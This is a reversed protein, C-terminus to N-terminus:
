LTKKDVFKWNKHQKYQGNVVAYLSGRHLNHDKSFQTLSSTEYIVGEPSILTYIYKCNIESLKRKTEESHNKGTNIVSLRKRFEESRKQGRNAEAIKRRTEESQKQGTKALSLNKRHEESLPKKWQHHREGKRAISMNKRHEESLSKGKKVKSMRKRFEDSRKRGKNAQSIKQKTEESCPIGKKAASLKKSTEVSVKSGLRSSALPCVNYEPRYADLYLQEIDTLYEKDIWEEIPISELIIFDFASESYKNWANQLYFCHHKNRKLESKHLKWRKIFSQAASGIYKKGSEKHVIAYIGTQLLEEKSYESNNNM